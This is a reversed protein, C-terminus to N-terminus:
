FVVRSLPACCGSPFRCVRMFGKVFVVLSATTSVFGVRTGVKERIKEPPVEPTGDSRLGKQLVDV